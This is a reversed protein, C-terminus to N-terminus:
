LLTFIANFVTDPNIKNMCHEPGLPCVRQYNDSFKPGLCEDRLKCHELPGQIHIQEKYGYVASKTPGWLIVAPKGTLHAAHMIFNDSSIVFNCKKMLSILQRPSTIGLLSYAGKIHIDGMNGVQLVLVGEAVLRNVIIHWAAPHMMKRPSDSVPSIIINKKKWPILNYLIADDEDEKESLFLTEEVPTELGFKQALLQFARFNGSEYDDSNWYATEIIKADKPPYGIKNIAPHGKLLNTYKTRRVLNFKQLPNKDFALKMVGSLMLIDGYGGVPNVWLKEQAVNDPKIKKAM